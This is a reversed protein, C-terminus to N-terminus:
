VPNNARYTNSSGIREIDLTEGSSYHALAVLLSTIRLKLLKDAVEHTFKSNLIYKFHIRYAICLRWFDMCLENEPDTAIKNLFTDNLITMCQPDKSGKYCDIPISAKIIKLSQETFEEYIGCNRNMDEVDASINFQGTRQLSRPITYPKIDLVTIIEISPPPFPLHLYQIDNNLASVILNNGLLFLEKVITIPVDGHVKKLLLTLENKLVLWQQSSSNISNITDDISRLMLYPYFKHYLVTTWYLYPHEDEYADVIKRTIKEYESPDADRSKIELVLKIIM